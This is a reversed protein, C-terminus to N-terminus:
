FYFQDEWGVTVPSAGTDFIGFTVRDGLGDGNRYVQVTSYQDGFEDLGAILPIELTSPVLRPELAEVPLRVSLPRSPRSPVSSVRSRRTSAVASRGPSHRSFRSIRATAHYRPIILFPFVKEPVKGAGALADRRATVPAGVSWRRVGAPSGPNLASGC